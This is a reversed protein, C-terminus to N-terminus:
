KNDYWTKGMTLEVELKVNLKAAEEMSKKLIEAAREKCSEHAEIILEDHVQLILKADIKSETLKKETNIMAIKIIDAAAGQVPSNMAVREGFARLQAKSSSLEPIYRRRGFMTTVYGNSYAEKVVNKLYNDVGKYKTLYSNIYEGATRRTVGLDVSLSYDGIGYVIGFNVAKARKRQEKTVEEIDVGFIQSATVTHIDINRNFAELMAEDNAIHALLRLEIQSYDADILVYEDNEPVFSRRLERGLPTRIPINQLNPETSSLRGTATVTQNFTSHVRGTSDAAKLLGDAYTSKLKVVQRYELIDDIIPHYIRLKELVEANTSYGTKTKKGAPLMLKEFLVEGLQKPSNINFECGALQYIREMYENAKTDLMNSFDELSARDVKFGRKEIEYLVKSLKLEVDFYLEKQGSSELEKEMVKYLEYLIQANEGQKNYITNLFRMALHPLDYAGESPNIVYAALMVDFSLNEFKIESEHLTHYTKKSDYVCVKRGTNEFFEKLFTLSPTSVRYCGSTDALHFNDESFCVACIEKKGLELAEEPLINKSKLDIEKSELSLRKIFAFFELEKFRKTLAEKDPGQYKYSEIDTDIPAFRNITALDKSLYANERNLNLKNKVGQAADCEGDDLAKYLNEISSYSSILKIATKEGIGAVGPINDSSDGMLGKLDILQEPNVSYKEIFKDTDFLLTDNNTALLVSTNESILQLSDKDGTLLFTHCGNEEGVRALTGLIDDAEYGELSTVKIGMDTLCLKCPAFQVALEEPMPKRTAKYETYKLHRFTPKREDFAVCCYDPSLSEIQKLLINIMGYIAHTFLGDKTTLPRIGYYARNLISNGDIVLFKKM